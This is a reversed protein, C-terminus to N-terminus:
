NRTFLRNMRLETESLTTNLEMETYFQLRTGLNSQSEHPQIFKLNSSFHLSLIDHFM